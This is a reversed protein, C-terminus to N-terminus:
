RAPFLCGGFNKEIKKNEGGFNLLGLLPVRCSEQKWDDAVIRPDAM